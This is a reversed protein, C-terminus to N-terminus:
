KILYITTAVKNELADYEEQTGNWIVPVM